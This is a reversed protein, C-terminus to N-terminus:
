KHVQAILARLKELTFDPSRCLAILAQERTYIRAAAEPILPAIALPVSQVGHLDGHLLDGSRITLGGIEVPQGFEVIHVYGHSVSVSGAFYHFGASRAAPIDRVAGDTVVGVCHLAQLISMHVEGVLSCLGPKTAMDQVVVVRPAPLSMIYDWWDTRDVYSRAATPPASGRIRVTAAYGVMPALEPFLARVTHNVFGENRLREHFTEIANAVTCADLSRLAQLQGDTLTATTNM